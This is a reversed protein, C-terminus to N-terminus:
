RTRRGRRHATRSGVLVARRHYGAARLLAGSIRDFVWRLSSVYFLAFFLSGYFIYYSSFDIGEVLAYVFLIVTVQFLSSIVGHLGPRQARDGYLGSRAFLLITVLVALPALEGARTWALDLGSEGGKLVHKARAGHLHGPLRRRRRPHRAHRHARAPPRHRASSARSSCPRRARMDRTALDAPTGAPRVEHLERVLGNAVGTRDGEVLLHVGRIYRPNGALCLLRSPLYRLISRHRVNWGICAGTLAQARPHGVAQRAARAGATGIEEVAQDRRLGALADDIHAAPRSTQGGRLRVEVHRAHVALRPGSVGACTEHLAVGRLQGEGVALEVDRVRVRHDLVQGGSRALFVRALNPADRTAPEHLSGAACKRDLRVREEWEHVPQRPREPPSQPPESDRAVGVVLDPQEASAFEAPQERVGDDHALAEARERLGQDCGSRGALPDARQSEVDPSYVARRTAEGHTIARGHPRPFPAFQLSRRTVSPSSASPWRGSTAWAGHGCGPSTRTRRHLGPRLHDAPVGPGPVERRAPRPGAQGAPHLRAAQGGHGRRGARDAGDVLRDGGGRQGPRDRGRGQLPDGAATGPRGPLGRGAHGHALHPEQGHPGPRRLGAPPVPGAEPRDLSEVPWCYQRYAAVFQGVHEERRRCEAM